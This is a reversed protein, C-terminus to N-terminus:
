PAPATGPVLNITSLQQVNETAPEDRCTAVLGATCEFCVRLIYLCVPATLAPHSNLMALDSCQALGALLRRGQGKHTHLARMLISRPCHVRKICYFHCRSDALMSVLHLKGSQDQQTSHCRM